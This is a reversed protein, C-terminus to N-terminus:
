GIQITYFEVTVDAGATCIMNITDTSKVIRATPNLSSSAAAFAAGAPVVATANVSVYVKASPAYSFVAVYISENTSNIAGIASITPVALTTNTAAALTASFIQSCFPLGFGNVGKVFANIDYQTPMAM